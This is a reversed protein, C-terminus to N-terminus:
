RTTELHSTVHRALHFKPKVQLVVVSLVETCNNAKSELDALGVLQSLLFSEQEGSSANYSFEASRHWTLLRTSGNGKFEVRERALQRQVGGGWRWKVVDSTITITHLNLPFQKIYQCRAVEEIPVTLLFLECLGTPGHTQINKPNCSKDKHEHINQKVKM